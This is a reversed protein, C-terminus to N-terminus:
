MRGSRYLGTGGGTVRLCLDSIGQPFCPFLFIRVVLMLGQPPHSADSPCLISSLDGVLRRILTDIGGDGLSGSGMPMWHKGFMETPLIRVADTAQRTRRAVTRPRRDLSAIFAEDVDRDAADLPKEGLFMVFREVWRVYRERRELSDRTQSHARLSDDIPVKKETRSVDGDAHM